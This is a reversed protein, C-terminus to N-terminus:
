AIKIGWLTVGGNGSSPTIADSSNGTSDFYFAYQDTTNSVTLLTPQSLFPISYTLNSSGSALSLANTSTTMNRIRINTSSSGTKFYAGSTTVLYTGSQSFTWRSVSYNGVNYFLNDSGSTRMWDLEADSIGSAGDLTCGLMFITPGGSPAGYNVLENVVDAMQKIDARALSPRDSGADLNTTSITTSPWTPM